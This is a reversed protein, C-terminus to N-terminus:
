QFSLSLVLEPTFWDFLSQVIFAAGQPFACTLQWRLWGQRAKLSSLLPFTGTLFYTTSHIFAFLTGKMYGCAKFKVENM